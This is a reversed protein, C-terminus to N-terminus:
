WVTCSRATSTPAAAAPETGISLTKQGIADFLPECAALAAPDGATVIFLKAGAAMDPRGFVPASVFQQGVETHAQALKRSLAVSITSMSIHIADRPLSELIGSKAFTVDSVASDDALMTIVTQADCADAVSSAEKAGLQVLERRKQASRNFV